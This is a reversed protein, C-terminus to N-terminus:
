AALWPHVHAHCDQCLWVLNKKANGGGHHNQLIHHRIQAPRGCAFCKSGPHRKKRRQKVANFRHRNKRAQDPTRETLVLDSYDRLAQLTKERGVRSRSHNGRPRGYDEWFQRLLLKAVRNPPVYAAPQRM